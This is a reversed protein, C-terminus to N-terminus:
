QALLIADRLHRPLNRMEIKLGHVEGLLEKDRAAAVKDMKDLPIVAEPGAEGLLGVTPGRVIGGHAFGDLMETSGVGGVDIGIQKVQAVALAAMRAGEPGAAAIRDRFANGLEDASKGTILKYGVYAAVAAAGIGTALTAFSTTATAAGTTMVGTTAVSATGLGTAAVTTGTIAPMLTSALATTGVGAATQLATGVGTAAQSVGKKGGLWGIVSSFTKTLSEWGGQTFFDSVSKFASKVLGVTSIMTQLKTIGEGLKTWIKGLDEGSVTALNNFAAGVDRLADNFSPMKSNTQDAFQTAIVDLETSLEVGKSRLREAEQAVLEMQHVNLDEDSSLDVFAQELARAQDELPKMSFRKMYSDVRANAAKNEDAAAAGDIHAQALELMGGSLTVGSELVTALMAGLARHAEENYETELSLEKYVDTLEALKEELPIGKIERMISAVRQKHQELIRDAEAQKTLEETTERAKTALEVMEATLVAGADAAEQAREGVEQMIRENAQQEPTLERWAKTLVDIEKTLGEGALEARLDEVEDALEQTQTALKEAEIRDKELAEAAAEAEVAERIFLDAIQELAPTLEEGAERLQIARQAIVAMQDDNLGGVVGGLNAMATHLEKVTGTVAAEGLAVELDEISHTLTGVDESVERAALAAKAEEDSVLGLINKFKIWAAGFDIVEAIWQGFKFLAFAAAVAALVILGIGTAAWLATFAGALTVSAAATVGQAVSTAGLWAIFKLFIGKAGSMVLMLAKKAGVYVWTAATAIKQAAATLKTQTALWVLARGTSAAVVGLVKIAPAFFVKVGRALFSKNLATMARTLLGIKPTATSASVSLGGLGIVLAGVGLAVHGLLILLPGLAAAFAIFGIILKQTLPSLGTFAPILENSVWNSVKIGSEFISIFMPALKEGVEIMMGEAASKFRIFAGNLGELQISAVRSAIGGANELEGSLKRISEHGQSVLGMLAPGARMGFIAMMDGTSVSREGLQQVIDVMPLLQGTADTTIIGNARLAASVKNTPNVLRTIAGRLSTGAMSAQIGANGMLALMATAEEFAVGAGRAVPGVFKFAQGLQVLDTNASTFAKVLIDNTEGVQEVTRGYGTLINTTIDAASALDLQASAALELVGPLTGMIEEAEFGAMALFGMADAAETASFQTTKGLEKALGTLKTFDDGTAGTLARVRNMNKEFSGFAIGAAAGMAVLPLTLGMSLSKGTAKMQTGVAKMKTGATQLAKSARALAPTLQDQLKLLVLLTGVNLM